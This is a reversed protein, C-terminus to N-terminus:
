APDPTDASASSVRRHAPWNEIPWLPVFVTTRPLAYGTAIPVVHLLGTAEPAHPQASRPGVEQLAHRTLQRHQRALATAPSFRVSRLPRAVQAMSLLCFSVAMVLLATTDILRNSKASLM